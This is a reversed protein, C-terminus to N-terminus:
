GNAHPKCTPVTAWCPPATAPRTCPPWHPWRMGPRPKVCGPASRCSAPMTPPQKCNRWNMRHPWGKSAACRAWSYCNSQRSSTKQKCNCLSSHPAGNWISAASPGRWGSAPTTLKWSPPMLRAVHPLWCPAPRAGSTSATPYTWALPKWIPTFAVTPRRTTATNRAVNAYLAPMATSACATVAPWVIAAPAHPACDPM